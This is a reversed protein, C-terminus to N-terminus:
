GKSEYDLVRDLQAVPARNTIIATKGKSNLLTKDRSFPLTKYDVRKRQAAKPFSM